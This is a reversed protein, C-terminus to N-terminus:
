RLTMSSKITDKAEVAVVWHTRDGNLDTSLKPADRAAAFRPSLVLRV